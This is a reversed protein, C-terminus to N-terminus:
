EFIYTGQSIRFVLSYAVHEEHPDRILTPPLACEDESLFVFFKFLLFPFSIKLLAKNDRSPESWKWRVRIRQPWILSDRFAYYSIINLYILFM